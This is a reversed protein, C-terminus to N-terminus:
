PTATVKAPPEAGGREEEMILVLIGDLRNVIDIATVINQYEASKDGKITVSKDDDTRADKLLRALEAELQDASMPVGNLYLQGSKSVIISKERVKKEETKRAQPLTLDIGSEKVMTTTLMFFIILLFVIDAMSGVPIVLDPKQTTQIRM